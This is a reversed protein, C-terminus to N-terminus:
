EAIVVMIIADKSFVCERKKAKLIRVDRVVGRKGGFM